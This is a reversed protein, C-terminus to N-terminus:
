LPEMLMNLISQATDYAGYTKIAEIRTITGNEYVQIELKGNRRAIRAERNNVIAGTDDRVVRIMDDDVVVSVDDGAPLDRLAKM